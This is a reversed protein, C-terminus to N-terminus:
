IERDFMQSFLKLFYLPTHDVHVAYTFNTFGGLQEIRINEQQITPISQKVLEAIEHEKM